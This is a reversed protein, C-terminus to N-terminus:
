HAPPQLRVVTGPPTVIFALTPHTGGPTYSTVISVTEAGQKCIYTMECTLAPKTCDWTDYPEPLGRHFTYTGPGVTGGADVITGADVPTGADVTTAADHATAADRTISADRGADM